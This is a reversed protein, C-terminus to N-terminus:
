ADSRHLSDGSNFGNPYRQKLKEINAEMVESLEIGSIQCIASLYWLVDGLEKRLKDIDLPHRHFVAKKVVETVEGAEGALGVAGWVLMTEKISLPAEPEKVLTRVALSQYTDADM